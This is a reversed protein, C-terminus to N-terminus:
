YKLFTVGFKPSDQRYDMGGKFDVKMKEVGEGGGGGGGWIVNSKRFGGLKSFCMLLIASLKKAFLLRWLSNFLIIM